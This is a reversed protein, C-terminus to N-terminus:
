KVKKPLYFNLFIRSYTPSLGLKTNVNIDTTVYEDIDPNYYESEYTTEVNVALHRFGFEGGISFNDDFFYEMGFGLEGAWAGLGEVGKKVDEDVEGDYKAEASIIPKSFNVNAYPRVKGSPNLFYKVGLTPIIISGKAQDEHSEDVVRGLDYDYDEGSWSYNFKGSVSSLAFYPIFQSNVQFGLHAGTVSTGPSVGFTIQAKSSTFCLLGVCLMIIKSMKM